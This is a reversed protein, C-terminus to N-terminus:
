QLHNIFSYTNRLGSLTIKYTLLKNKQQIEISNKTNSKNVAAVNYQDKSQSCVLQKFLTLLSKTEIDMHELEHHYIQSLISADEVCIYQLYSVM